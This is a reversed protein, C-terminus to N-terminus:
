FTVLVPNKTATTGSAVPAALTGKIVDRGREKRLELEARELAGQAMAVAAARALVKASSPELLVAEAYKAQEAALRARAYSVGADALGMGASKAIGVLAEKYSTACSPLLALLFFGAWLKLTGGGGPKGGAKVKSVAVNGAWLTVAVPDAADVGTVGSAQLYGAFAAVGQRALASIIIQWTQARSADLPRKTVVSWLSSVGFFLLAAVVSGTSTADVQIGHQLLWGALAALAHRIVIPALGNTQNM